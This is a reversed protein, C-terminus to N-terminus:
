TESYGMNNAFNIHLNIINEKERSANEQYVEDESLESIDDTNKQIQAAQEPTAGPTVPNEDLYNNVAETIKEDPVSGVGDIKRNLKNLLGFIISDM